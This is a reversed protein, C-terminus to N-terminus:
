MSPTAIASGGRHLAAGAAAPSRGRNRRRALGHHTDRTRLDARRAQPRRAPLAALDRAAAGARRVPRDNADAAASLRCRRTAAQRPRRCRTRQLVALSPQSRPQRIGLTEFENFLEPPAPTTACRSRPACDIGEPGPAAIRDAAHRDVHRRCEFRTARRRGNARARRPSPAGSRRMTSTASWRISSIRFADESRGLMINAIARM